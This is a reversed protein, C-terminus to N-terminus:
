SQKEPAAEPASKAPQTVPEAAPTAKEDVQTEPTPITSTKPDTM